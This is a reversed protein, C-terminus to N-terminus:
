DRMVTEIPTLSIDKGIDKMRFDNMASNDIKYKNNFEEFTLILM